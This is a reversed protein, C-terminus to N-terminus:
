IELPNVYVGAIDEKETSVAKRMIYDNMFGNYM